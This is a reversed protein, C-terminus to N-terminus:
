LSVESYAPYRYFPYNIRNQYIKIKIISMITMNSKTVNPDAVLSINKNRSLDEKFGPTFLCKRSIGVSLFISTLLTRSNLPPLAVFVAAVKEEKPFFHATIEFIPLSSYPWNTILSRLLLLIIADVEAKKALDIIYKPSVNLENFDTPGHELGHDYALFVGKLPLKEM